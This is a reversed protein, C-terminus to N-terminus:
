AAAGKLQFNACAVEMADAWEMAAMEPSSPKIPSTLPLTAGIMSRRSLQNLVTAIAARRIEELKATEVMSVSEPRPIIESLAKALECLGGIPRHLSSGQAEDCDAEMYALHALIVQLGTTMMLPRLPRPTFRAALTNFQAQSLFSDTLNPVAAVRGLVIGLARWTVKSSSPHALNIHNGEPLPIFNSTGPM